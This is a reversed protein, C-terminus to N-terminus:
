SSRDFYFLNNNNLHLPFGAKRSPVLFFQQSLSRRTNFEQPGRTEAWPHPNRRSVENLLHLYWGGLVFSCALATCKRTFLHFSFTPFFPDWLCKSALKPNRNGNRKTNRFHSGPPLTHHCKCKHGRSTEQAEEQLVLEGMGILFNQHLWEM